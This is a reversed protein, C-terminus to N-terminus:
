LNVDAYVEIWENHYEENQEFFEILNNVVNISMTIYSSKYSTYFPASIAAFLECPQKEFALKEIENLEIEFSTIIDSIRSEINGSIILSRQSKQLLKAVKLILDSQPLTNEKLFSILTTM